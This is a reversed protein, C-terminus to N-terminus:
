NYFDSIFLKNKELLGHAECNNKRQYWVFNLQLLNKSNKSKEYADSFTYSKSM